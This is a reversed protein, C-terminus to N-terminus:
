AATVPFSARFVAGGGEADAVDLAAGHLEAIVRAIALGLGTGASAQATRAADVQYFREFIREKAEAPV